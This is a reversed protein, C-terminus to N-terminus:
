GLRVRPNSLAGGDWEKMRGERTWRGETPSITLKGPEASIDVRDGAHIGLMDCFPQPIRLAKANGWKGMTNTTM